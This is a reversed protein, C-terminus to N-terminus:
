NYAKPILLFYLVVINEELQWGWHNRSPVSIHERLGQCIALNRAALYWGCDELMRPNGIGRENYKDPFLGRVFSSENVGMTVAAYFFGKLTAANSCLFTLLKTFKASIKVFFWATKNWFERWTECHKQTFFHTSHHQWFKWLFKNLNALIIGCFNALKYFKWLFGNQQFTNLFIM